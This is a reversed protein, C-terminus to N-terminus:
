IRQLSISVYRQIKGQNFYVIFSDKTKIAWSQVGDKRIEFRYMEHPKPTVQEILGKNQEYFESEMFDCSKLLQVLEDKTISDKLLEKLGDKNIGM